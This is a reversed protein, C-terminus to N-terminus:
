AAENGAMFEGPRQSIIKEAILTQTRTLLSLYVVMLGDQLSSQCLKEVAEVDIVPEACLATTLGRGVARDGEVKGSMVARVYEQIRRFLSLLEKLGGEFGDISALDKAVTGNAAAERTARRALMLQSIGSKEAPSTQVRLPVELFQLLSPAVIPQVYMFAKIGLAQQTLSTDVLLHVPAPLVATPKFESEKSCYFGHIVASTANIEDGTGTSFWGVVEERPSVKKRLALMQKHYDQDMFVGEEATDKHVVPFSDTIDVVSGESIWGLLTGITRKAGEARRVYSDLLNVIAVPHARCSLPQEINNKGMRATINFCTPPAAKNKRDPLGWMAQAAM